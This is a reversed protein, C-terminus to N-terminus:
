VFGVIVKDQWEDSGHEVIDVKSAADGFLVFMPVHVAETGEELDELYEVQWKGM